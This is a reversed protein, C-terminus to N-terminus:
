RMEYARQLVLLEASTTVCIPICRLSESLLSLDLSPFMPHIFHFSCRLPSQVSRHFGSHHHTFLAGPPINQRRPVKWIFFLVPVALVWVM